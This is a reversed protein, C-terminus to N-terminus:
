DRVLYKLVSKDQLNIENKLTTFPQDDTNM